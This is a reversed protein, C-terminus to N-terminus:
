PQKRDQREARIFGCDHGVFDTYEVLSFGREALLAVLEQSRARKDHTAHYEMAIRRVRRLVAEPAARLIEYEAGECDLKLFDCTTVAFRHFLEELTVAEVEEYAPEGRPRERVITHLAGEAGKYLKVLGNAGGVALRVPHVNRLRNLRLNKLLLPYNDSAPEVTIVRGRHAMRGALIAFGGINGGIDVVTADPAFDFGDRTYDRRVLMSQMIGEDWTTRRVFVAVGGIRVKRLPLGLRRFVRDLHEQVVYPVRRELVLARLGRMTASGAPKEGPQERVEVPEALMM